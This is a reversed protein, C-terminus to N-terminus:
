LHANNPKTLEPGVGGALRQVLLGVEYSLNETDEKTAAEAYVRVVDETGSPRVFARGRKYNSVAMNIEDQLGVPKVCIREADTTTIVNRDKVKIKLQRNPLDNYTSIWDKVDWGKHNLITEVLLMDSIADGVTENILDILLLLTKAKPNTTVAQAIVSKAYDSFVITGHGNAEFYIGVDYELAKHHLHKVGTPVCSVPVKLENEIYDTSAGNAYATQVLGLRLNIECSKILDMLYGAVLTAIRDGDLLHFQGSDDTFFYVVRDADGDVSVCRTFPEVSPMSKPPRQQVKVYDAGCDENIKGSGIGQNIVTIDLSKNMRKIFQLMKRAGVGNAGDFVLYNRYNGKELCGDRLEEFASILKKYYGEETPKGYAEKTNASVVFYHMMPTTVIGFERVNGKLAIVGDSVAKLLRPSHYRNDMGVYVHSSSAVDIQNDKIIKAVQQELDQDSVNVLDTAITEWSPELMEGKPDILKVGNDPEPNHSATIMVGIVSGGRFRSRLTALVGMRFMVSDLFEAKGRFGATGYQIPETTIKPYMERAFAYVTRLNISM